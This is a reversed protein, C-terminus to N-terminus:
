PLQERYPWERWSWHWLVSALQVAVSVKPVTTPHPPPRLRGLHAQRPAALQQLFILPLNWLDRLNKQNSKSSASGSSGGTTTPASGFTASGGNSASGGSSGTATATTSASLFYSSVCSAQCKAYSDTDAATGNGQPCQAECTTTANAQSPSPCPVGVCKAQCCVDASGGTKPVGFTLEWRDQGLDESYIM